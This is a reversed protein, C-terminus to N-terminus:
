TRVLQPPAVASPRGTTSWDCCASESLVKVLSGLIRDLRYRSRLVKGAAFREM